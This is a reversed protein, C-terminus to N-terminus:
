KEVEVMITNSSMPRVLLPEWKSRLEVGKRGHCLQLMVGRLSISEFPLAKGRHPSLCDEIIIQDDRAPDPDPYVAQAQALASAAARQLREFEAKAWSPLREIRRQKIDAATLKAAVTESPIDRDAAQELAQIIEVTDIEDLKDLADQMEAIASDMAQGQDGQQLGESMNDYAEQEEDRAEDILARAESIALTVTSLRNAAMKLQARRNNNM